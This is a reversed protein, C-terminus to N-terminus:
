KQRSSGQGHLRMIYSDSDLDEQPSCVFRGGFDAVAYMTLVLVLSCVTKLTVLTMAADCGCGMICDVHPGITDVWLEFQQSRMSVRIVM